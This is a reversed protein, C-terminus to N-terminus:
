LPSGEAYPRPSRKADGSVLEAGKLHAHHRARLDLADVVSGHRALNM